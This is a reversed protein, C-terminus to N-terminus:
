GLVLSVKELDLREWEAVIVEGSALRYAIGDKWEIWLILYLEEKIFPFGHEKKETSWTKFRTKLKCVAVVDVPLGVEIGDVIEPFRDKSEEDVLYLKGIDKGSGNCLRVENDRWSESEDFERQFGSLRAQATECFLYQTQEPMSPLTSVQIDKVPFPYYWEAPKGFVGPM